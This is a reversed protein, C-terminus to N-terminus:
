GEYAKHAEELDFVNQPEVPALEGTENNYYGILHVEKDKCDIEHYDKAMFEFQRRATKEMLVFPNSYSEAMKDYIAYVNLIM